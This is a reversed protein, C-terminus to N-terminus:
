RRYFVPVPKDGGQGWQESRMQAPSSSNRIYWYGLNNTVRWVALDVKGDADYDNHVAEDTSVGWDITVSQNNSSQKIIWNVGRRVAYDAKGDGDYDAQVPKDGSQGITGGQISNDTALWYFAGATDRWVGINAKGDGDYDASAPKDTGVGFQQTIWAGDSSKLIYWFQTSSRFVAPDTKGDGDYDAPAIQDTGVGFYYALM